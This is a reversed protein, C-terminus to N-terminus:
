IECAVQCPEVQDMESISFSYLLMPKTSAKVGFRLYFPIQLSYLFAKGLEFAIVLAPTGLFRLFRGMTMHNNVLSGTKKGSESSFDLKLPVQPQISDQDYWM